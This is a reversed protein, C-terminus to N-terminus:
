SWLKWRYGSVLPPMLLLLQGVVTSFSSFSEYLQLFLAAGDGM